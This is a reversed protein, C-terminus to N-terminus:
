VIASWSNLKAILHTEAIRSWISWDNGIMLVQYAIKKAKAVENTTTITSPLIMVVKSLSASSVLSTVHAFIKISARLDPAEIGMM